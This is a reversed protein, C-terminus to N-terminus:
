QAPPKPPHEKQLDALDHRNDSAQNQMDVSTVGADAGANATDNKDVRSNIAGILARLGFFGGFALIALVGAGWPGAGLAAGALGTLTSFLTGVGIGAVTPGPAAQPAAPATEAPKQDTM